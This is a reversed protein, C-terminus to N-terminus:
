RTQVFLSITNPTNDLHRRVVEATLQLPFEESVMKDNFVDMVRQAPRTTRFPVLFRAYDANLLFQSSSLALESFRLRLTDNTFVSSGVRTIGDYIELPQLQFHDGVCILCPNSPLSDCTLLIHNLFTSRIQTVEDILLVHINALGWNIHMPGNEIPINFM